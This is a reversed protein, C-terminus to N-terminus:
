FKPKLLRIQFQAAHPAGRFVIRAGWLLDIEPLKSFTTCVHWVSNFLRFKLPEKPAFM